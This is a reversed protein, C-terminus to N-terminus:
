YLGTLLDGPPVELARILRLLTTLRIERAGREVRSVQVVALGTRESLDEQTWGKAQRAARVNGGFIALADQM